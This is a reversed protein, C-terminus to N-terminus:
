HTSIPHFKITLGGAIWYAMAQFNRFTRYGRARRRALQLLGNVAEIAASTTYNNFYGLIGDMHRKLTKGLKVFPQMRSRSCWSIVSELHQLYLLRPSAFHRWDDSAM